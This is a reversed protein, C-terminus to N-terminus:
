YLIGEADRMETIPAGPLHCPEREPSCSINKAGLEGLTAVNWHAKWGCGRRTYRLGCPKRGGQSEPWRQGWLAVGVVLGSYGTIKRAML